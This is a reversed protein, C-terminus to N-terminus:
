KSFTLYISDYLIQDKLSTEKWEAYHGQFKLSNKNTIYIVSHQTYEKSIFQTDWLSKEKLINLHTHNKKVTMYHEMFYIM